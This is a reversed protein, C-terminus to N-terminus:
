SRLQKMEKQTLKKRFRPQIKQRSPSISLLTRRWKQTAGSCSGMKEDNQGNSAEGTQSVGSSRSAVMDNFGTRQTMEPVSWQTIKHGSHETADHVSPNLPADGESIEVPAGVNVQSKNPFRAALAM